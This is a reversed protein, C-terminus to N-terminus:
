HFFIPNPRQLRIPQPQATQQAPYLERSRPIMTPKAPARPLQPPEDDYDEHIEEIIQKKPKSKKFIRRIITPPEDDDDDGQEHIEEIITQRPKASKSRPNQNQQATTKPESPIPEGFTGPLSGAPESASPETIMREVIKKSRAQRCREFAM